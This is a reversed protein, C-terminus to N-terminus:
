STPAGSGFAAASVPIAHLCRILEAERRLISRAMALRAATDPASLLEQRDGLPLSALRAVQYSLSKPDEDALNLGPQDFAVQLEQLARQHQALAGRTAAVATAGLDGIPEPLWEVTGVLYPQDDPHLQLVRYRREGVAALDCRGDPLPRVDTIRASTGIQHLEGVQGVEWGQRLAIVGFEPAQPDHDDLLDAVLQRYRPEFIHLALPMGPTLVTSLPFLPLRQTSTM